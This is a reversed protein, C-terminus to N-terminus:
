KVKVWRLWKEARWAYTAVNSLPYILSGNNKIRWSKQGISLIECSISDTTCSNKIEQIVTSIYWKNKLCSISHSCSESDKQKKSSESAKTLIHLSLESVMREVALDIQLEIKKRKDDSLNEVKLDKRNNQLKDYWLFASIKNNWERWQIIAPMSVTIFPTDDHFSAVMYYLSSKKVDNLYHYYNFALAHALTDTNCPYWYNLDKNHLANLFEQYSLHSIKEIKEKDCSYSIGKEWLLVTNRRSLELGDKNTYEKDTAPGIYQWLLYPYARHPNLNTIEDFKNTINSPVRLNVDKGIYQITDLWKYSTFIDQWIFAHCNGQGYECWINYKKIFGTQFEAPTSTVFEIIQQLAYGTHTITTTWSWSWIWLHYDKQPNYLVSFIIQSAWLVVWVFIIVAINKFKQM